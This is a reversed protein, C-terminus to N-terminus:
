LLHTKEKLILVGKTSARWARKQEARWVFFCKIDNKLDNFCVNKQSFPRDLLPALFTGFHM